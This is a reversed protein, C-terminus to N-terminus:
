KQFSKAFYLFLGNASYPLGSKGVKGNELERVTTLLEFHLTISM